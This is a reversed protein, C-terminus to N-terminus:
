SIVSIISEALVNLNNKNVGAINVRGSKVIYIAYQNQLEDVQETTLGSFSFMGIQSKIFSFDRPSGLAHLQEVLHKRINEMRSRVQTLEEEWESKMQSDSLILRVIDGGHSPPNSYNARICVKIQSLVNELHLPELGLITLAGVRESYLGFNKSFSSCIIAEPNERVIVRLGEADEDLGNGFGQYAFDILPIAQKKFILESIMRWQVPNFDMGTPNHCCAHLLVVDGRNIKSLDKIIGNFDLRNNRYDYYTYEIIKLNTSDIIQKHNSWTPKSIWFVSDAHFKAFYDIVIKLAGTGGPTHITKVINHKQKKLINGLILDQVLSGFEGDGIIPKYSKSFDSKLLIEEAKKVVKFTPTNGESDQYVGISLNIKGSRPDSNFKESLGLIPDPEASKIIEFM